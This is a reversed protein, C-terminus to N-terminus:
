DVQYAGMLEPWAMMVDFMFSEFKRKNFVYLTESSCADIDIRVPTFTLTGNSDSFRDYCEYYDAGMSDYNKPVANPWSNKLGNELIIKCIRKVEGESHVMFHRDGDGMGYPSIIRLRRKDSVLIIPNKAGNVTCLVMSNEM